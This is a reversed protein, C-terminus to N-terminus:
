LPKMLMGFDFHVIRSNSNRMGKFCEVKCFNLFFVQSEKIFFDM